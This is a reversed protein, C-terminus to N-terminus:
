PRVFYLKSSIIMNQEDKQVRVALTNAQPTTIPMGSLSYYSINYRSKDMSYDDTSSLRGLLDFYLFKSNKTFDDIYPEFENYYHGTNEAYFFHIGFFGQYTTIDEPVTYFRPDVVKIYFTIHTLYKDLSDVKLSDTFFLDKISDKWGDKNYTSHGGQHYVDYFGGKFNMIMFTPLSDMPFSAVFGVTLISDQFNWELGWISDRNYEEQAFCNGGVLLLLGAILLAKFNKMDKLNKIILVINNVAHCWFSNRPSARTM